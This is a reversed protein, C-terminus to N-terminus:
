IDCAGGGCAYEKGGETNDEMEYEGLLGFNVEPFEKMMKRYTDADIDEYPALQYVHDDVPMFTLGCVDEFNSYVWAAVDLWEDERVDITISPNHECWFNRVMRWYELQQLASDGLVKAGRPAKIPFELVFRTTDGGVEQILEMGADQMLFALPDNSAIRVRRIYCGSKTKRTHAGPSCDVLSSVTNHSVYSNAIYTNNEPVELDVTHAVSDEIGEVIDPIFETMGINDLDKYLNGLGSKHMAGNRGKLITIRYRMASGWSTETPLMLRCSCTHGLARLVIPLQRALTESITCLIKYGRSSVCGDADFLGDIFAQIIHKPSRRILLPIDINNTKNKILDNAKLFALLFTSNAYVDANRGSAREYIFCDINFLQSIYEGVKKLPVMDDCCGAIRIGKKHTSGDGAYLGLVYALKEDLIDPQEIEKVNCYPPEVKILKQLSGGSYGGIKYPLCDGISMERLEKWQYEGNQLVRFKHNPTAELVIGSQMHVRKTPVEGNVHFKTSKEYSTEQEVEIDHDQWDEGHTDGIEALELIGESTSILSDTSLCGSPKVCTIAAARNIGLKEAYKKNTQIAVHKLDALWKKATDNVNGLVKHDRLGTFSVGLLREEECNMKWEKDVYKFKTFTSQWTGIMTAIIVKRKLTEFTDEPRIVVESLNCTEKSTLLVEGCPNVGVVKSGDRRDNESAKKQAAVRSFIGREGSKSRDLNKWEDIFSVIDPVRTYAVSNNALERQKNIKWFDGMKANAMQNDTLDSLSICASRRTGGAVVAESVKCAIDHADVPQIQFGRNREAIDTVFDVLEILPGPGSARGGFTKLREGFPRVKSYDCEFDQGEWLCELVREFGKAWGLRSDEFVIKEIASGNKEKIAPLQQIFKREVSFGLGCGNMLVYLIESFDKLKTITTFACNYFSLNEVDAAKGASWLARMSPMVELNYIANFVDKREKETVKDGLKKKIYDCYRSVTEDWSERRKEKERWRSYSRVYIFEQFMTEFINEKEKKDTM